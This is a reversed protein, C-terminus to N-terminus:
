HLAGEIAFGFVLWSLLHALLYGLSLGLVAQSFTNM